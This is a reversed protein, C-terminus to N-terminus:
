SGRYVEERFTEDSNQFTERIYICHDCEAYFIRGTAATECSPVPMGLLQSSCDPCVGVVMHPRDRKSPGHKRVVTSHSRVQRNREAKKRLAEQYDIVVEDVYMHLEQCCEYYQLWNRVAYMERMTFSLSYDLVDQKLM